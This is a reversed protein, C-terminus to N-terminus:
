GAFESLQRQRRGSGTGKRPPPTGEEGADSAPAPGLIELVSPADPEAGLLFAVEDATLDLERAIRREVARYAPSARRAKEPRFLGDLFPLLTERCKAHSLHFRDGVKAALGDRVGRTGRSRGMEGLYQPFAAGGGVHTARDRLSLGVGGTLLESAYSWLSWVRARRARSLFQEAVALVDYSAARHNADPAFHPINEEIWPLLDDPPADLREQVEVSRYFRPTTLVEETLAAFDSALDRTGLVSLQVPGPPLPAIAELDNLAARVDGRARTVIADLAGPALVIRESYAVRELRARLEPDRVPYFRVRVVSTRFVPSYRTLPREDNVTLVIPQRTARVLRAIAGLGGRDSVDSTKQSGRWEEIDKRAPPLRAWSANGPSRPVAEWDEFPRTKGTGTLGYAENLAAVTRYRGRLFERLPPPEAKAPASDTIRGTLCDAEDLLILARGPHGSGSGEGLTHTISARGAVQNIAGENRADSANMEVVTWRHDRALALAASTKGVGAPGSLVAARRAPPAPAEWSDAWRRLEEKARPNGVLDDLRTPRVRETLPLAPATQGAM